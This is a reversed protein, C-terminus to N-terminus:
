KFDPNFENVQDYIFESLFWNIRKNSDTYFAHGFDIIWIKNNNDIMFNYPTIDIYEIGEDEYLITLIHRIEDWVWKPIDSPDDSYKEFLTKGNIKEMTIESETELYSLKNIKPTFNYTSSIYNQLEYELQISKKITKNYPIKKIFKENNSMNLSKHTNIKLYSLYHFIEINQHYIELYKSIM